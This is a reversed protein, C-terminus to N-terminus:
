LLHNGLMLNKVYVNRGDKLKPTRDLSEIMKMVFNKRLLICDDITGSTQMKPLSEFRLPHLHVMGTNDVFELTGGQAKILFSSIHIASASFKSGLIQKHFMSISVDLTTGISTIDVHDEQFKKNLKNLEILVDSVLM